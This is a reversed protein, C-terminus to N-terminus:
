QIYSQVFLGLNTEQAVFGSKTDELECDELYGDNNRDSAVYARTYVGDLWSIKLKEM